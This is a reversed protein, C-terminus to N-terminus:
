NRVTGETHRGTSRQMSRRVAEQLEVMKFPKTLYDAVNTLKQGTMTESADHGSIIIGEVRPRNNQMWLLLELGDMEPMCIDTIVLDFRGASIKQLAQLGNEAVDASIGLPKLVRPVFHRMLSEDDVVLVQFTGCKHAMENM